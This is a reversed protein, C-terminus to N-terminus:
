VSPWNPVTVVEVATESAVKVGMIGRYHKYLQHPAVSACFGWIPQTFPALSGSLFGVSALYRSEVRGLIVYIWNNSEGGKVLTNCNPRETQICTHRGTQRDTQICTSYTHVTHVHIYTYCTQGPRYSLFELVNGRWIKVVPLDGCYRPERKFIIQIQNRIRSNKQMITKYVGPFGFDLTACTQCPSLENCFRHFHFIFNM